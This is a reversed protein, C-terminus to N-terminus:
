KLSQKGLCLNQFHLGTPPESLHWFEAGDRAELRWDADEQFRWFFLRSGRHWDWYDSGAAQKVCDEIARAGKPHNGNHKLWHYAERALNFVWFKHALRRLHARAVTQEPTENPMAWYALLEIEANDEVAAKARQIGKIELPGAVCAESNTKIAEVELKDQPLKIDM